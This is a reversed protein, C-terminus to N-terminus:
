PFLRMHKSVLSSKKVPNRELNYINSHVASLAAIRGFNSYFSIFLAVTRQSLIFNDVFLKSMGAAKGDKGCRELHMVSDSNYIIKSEDWIGLCIKYINSYDSTIFVCYEKYETDCKNKIELLLGHLRENMYTHKQDESEYVSVNNSLFDDGCRCQIGIINRRGNTYSDVRKIVVDTPKLIDTYLTKYESIIDDLYNSDKFLENKYLYQALEQNLYFKSIDNPFMNEIKNGNKLSTKLWTPSCHNRSMASYSGVDGSINDLSEFDYKKYDICDRIDEKRWLIYFKRDLLKSLLKVAILGVVRDGLGGSKKTTEDFCIVFM